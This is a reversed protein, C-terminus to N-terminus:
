WRSWEGKRIPASPTTKLRPTKPLPKTEAGAKEGDRKGALTFINGIESPPVAQSTFRWLLEEKGKLSLGVRCGSWTSFVKFYIHNWGKRFTINQVRIPHVLLPEEPKVMEERVTKGNIWCRVSAGERATAEEPNGYGSFVGFVTTSERAHIWTSFYCLGVGKALRGGPPWSVKGDKSRVVQWHIAPAKGNCDSTLDGRYTAKLDIKKDLPYKAQETFVKSVFDHAAQDATEGSPRSKLQPHGFPGIAMWKRISFSRLKAEQRDQAGAKFMVGACLLLAVVIRKM